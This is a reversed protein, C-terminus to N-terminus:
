CILRKHFNLFFTWHVDESNSFPNSSATPVMSSLKRRGARQATQLASKGGCILAIEVSACVPRDIIEIQTNTPNTQILSATISADNRM